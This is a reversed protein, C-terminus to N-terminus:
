SYLRDYTNRKIGIYATDSSIVAESNSNGTFLCVSIYLGTLTIIYRAFLRPETKDFVAHNNM